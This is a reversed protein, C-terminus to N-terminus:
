ILYTEYLIFLPTDDPPPRYYPLGSHAQAIEEFHFHSYLVPAVWVYDLEFDFDFAVKSYDDDLEIQLYENDCCDMIPATTECDSAPMVMGCSLAAHGLTIEGMMKHEGCYHEAYTLGASSLLILVSLITAIVRQM